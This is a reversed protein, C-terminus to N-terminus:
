TVPSQDHRLYSISKGIAIKPNDDSAGETGKTEAVSSTSEWHSKMEPVIKTNMGKM